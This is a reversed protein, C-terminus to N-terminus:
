DNIQVIILYKHTVSNANKIIIAKVTGLKEENKCLTSGIFLKKDLDLWYNNTLFFYKNGETRLLFDESTISYHVEINKKNYTSLLYDTKTEVIM